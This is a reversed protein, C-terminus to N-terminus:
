FNEAMWHPGPGNNSGKGLHVGAAEDAGGRRAELQQSAPREEEELHKNWTLAQCTTNSSVPKRLTHGNQGWKRQLIQREMPVQGARGWLDQNTITDELCISYIRRLCSNIFTQIRQLMKTTSRYTGFRYLLVIKFNSNFIRIKTNITIDKATWVKLM